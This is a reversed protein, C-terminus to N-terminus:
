VPMDTIFNEARVVNIFRARLFFCITYPSKNIYRDVCRRRGGEFSVSTKFFIRRSPNILVEPSVIECGLDRDIGHM